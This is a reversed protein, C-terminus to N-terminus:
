AENLFDIVTNVYEILVEDHSSYIEHKADFRVLRGQPVRRIFEDQEKLRVISDQAAQCLMVPVRIEGARALLPETVGAAERVWSYTPSCNQLETRACRKKQYYDYRAQSTM